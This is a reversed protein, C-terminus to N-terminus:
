PNYNEFNEQPFMGGSGGVMPSAGGGGINRSTDAM